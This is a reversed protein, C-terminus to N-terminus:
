PVYLMLKRGKRHDQVGEKPSTNDKGYDQPVPHDGEARIGKWADDGNMTDNDETDM